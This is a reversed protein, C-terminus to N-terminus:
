VRYAGAGVILVSAQLLRKQGEVGLAPVLLQRSYRSIQNITHMSKFFVDSAQSRISFFCTDVPGGHWVRVQAASLREVSPLPPLPLRPSEQQHSQSSSSSCNTSGDGGNRLAALEARLRRNEEALAEYSPAPPTPM